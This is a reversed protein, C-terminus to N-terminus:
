AEAPAEVPSEAPAETPAKAAKEAALLKEVAKAQKEDAKAARIAKGRERAIQRLIAAKVPDALGGGDPTVAFYSKRGWSCLMRQRDGRFEVSLQRSTRKSAKLFPLVAEHAAKITEDLEIAPKVVSEVTEEAPTEVEAPTTSETSAM